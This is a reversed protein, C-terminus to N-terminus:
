LSGGLEVARAPDLRRIRRLSGVTALLALALIVAGAGLLQSPTLSADIGSGGSSLAGVALLGGIAFAVVVIVLVQALVVRGLRRGPVGLARLIILQDLKQTTLILFFFGIVVAVVVYGLLLILSFSQQVAAVGPAEAEAQARTLPDTGPVESAIAAVVDDADAGEDLAVAAASPPVGVADPNQALRADAYTEFPVFLTPLVSFALDNGTGVITISPGGNTVEVTDGIQFGPGAAADVVAEGLEEPYRGDALSSPAGPAGLEYGFMQADTREVSTDVTFTAVGLPGVQAVGDVEAIAALDDDTLVSSQINKRAQESYVLVPADQNRLAGVFQTVLGSLLGQQFLVFFVLVAIAGTLVAFRGARRTLERGALTLAGM